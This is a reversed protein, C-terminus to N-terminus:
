SYLFVKYIGVKVQLDFNLPGVVMKDLERGGIKSPDCILKLSHVLFM